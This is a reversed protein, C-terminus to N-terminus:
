VTVPGRRSLRPFAPQSPRRETTARSRPTIRFSTIRSRTGTERSITRSRRQLSLRAFSWSQIASQGFQSNMGLAIVHGASVYRNPGIAFATGVSRYADTREQYPMLEMPLAREYIVNGDQPKQQVVEFTAARIQRQVDAELEAAGAEWPTLIWQLTLALVVGPTRRNLWTIM